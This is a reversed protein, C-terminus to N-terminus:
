KQGWNLRFSAGTQNVATSNLETGTYKATLYVVLTDNAVFTAAKTTSTTLLTSAGTDTTLTYTISKNAAAGCVMRAGSSTSCSTGSPNTPTISILKATITGVNKLTLTYQCSDDPKSLTTDSITVSNATVTATGCSRGTASTGGVTTAAISSGTNIFEVGFSNVNQTIKNVTVNLTASLAAYAVTVGVLLIAVVLLLMKLKKNSRM